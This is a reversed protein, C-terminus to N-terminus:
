SHRALSEALEIAKAKATYAGHTVYDDSGHDFHQEVAYKGDARQIVVFSADTGQYRDVIKM